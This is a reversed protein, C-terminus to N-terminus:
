LPEGKYHFFIIQTFNLRGLMALVLSNNNNNNNNNDDDDDDDVDYKLSVQIREFSKRFISL